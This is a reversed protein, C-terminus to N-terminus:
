FRKVYSHCYPQSGKRDYYDQHYKEAKYFQSAKTVGTAVKYGKNRLIDLLEQAEKKQTDNVYFIESRYQTGIDPGQRNSQTPDHIELFFKTLEKYSILSADFIVEVAEAHGTRGSCVEEYTPNKVNGGTYGSVVSLVGLEKALLHEVGWFCGGAFIATERKEPVFTMSISNVCHRTNKSTLREGTFVHGLHGNCNACVIETRQGDADRLRTVAGPIESDFSPWGCDSDFKDVSRYLPANCQKCHYTGIEKHKYFEGVFPAETGKNIIVRKEQETLTKKGQGEMMIPALLIILLLLRMHKMEGM